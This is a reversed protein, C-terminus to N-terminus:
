RTFLKNDEEKVSLVSFKGTSFSCIISPVLIMVKLCNDCLPKKKREKRSLQLSFFNGWLFQTNIMTIIRM